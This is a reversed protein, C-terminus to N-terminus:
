MEWLNKAQKWKFIIYENWDSEKWIKAIIGDYGAKEVKDMDIHFKISQPHWELNYLRKEKDWTKTLSDERFFPLLEEPTATNLDLPKEMNLYSKYVHGKEGLKVTFNSSWPLQEHAFQEAFKPNDTFYIWKKDVHVNSWALKEDFESIFKKEPTWHYLVKLEWNDNM